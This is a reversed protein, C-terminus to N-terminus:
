FIDGWFVRDRAKREIKDNADDEKASEEKKVKPSKKPRMAEFGPPLKLECLAFRHGFFHGAVFESGLLAETTGYCGNKSSAIVFFLEEQEDDHKSIKEFDVAPSKMELLYQLSAFYTTDGGLHIKKNEQWYREALYDTAKRLQYLPNKEIEQAVFPRNRWFEPERDQSASRFGAFVAEM